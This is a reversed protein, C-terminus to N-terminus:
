IDRTDDTVVFLSKRPGGDASAANHPKIAPSSERTSPQSAQSARRPTGPASETARGGPTAITAAPAGEVSRPSERASGDRQARAAGAQAGRAKARKGVTGRRAANLYSKLVDPSVELGRESLLGAVRAITYGRELLERITSALLEVAKRRSVDEPELAPLASLEGRLKELASLPVRNAQRM